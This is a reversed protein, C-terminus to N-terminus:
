QEVWYNPAYLDEIPNFSSAVGKLQKSYESFMPTYPLWIVPLDRAAYAQYADMRQQTQAATGPAYIAHLLADMIRSNYQGPNNAAGTGFLGGGSPFYDPQYTWSWSLGGGWNLLTWKTPDTPTALAIVNDFPESQLTVQIGEQAWDQKLLQVINTYTTSGSAYILSFALKQGNKVMVGNSLHWGHKELLTRGAALNYRYIPTNLARNYFATTPQPPIPGNEVVGQGHFMTRIIGEQNVGMQLAQRVYLNSLLSGGPGKPSLNPQIFNFGLIYTSVLRDATLEHRAKWLSPPLFGVNVTGNRLATFEASSSTEYQFQVKSLSSRHGGYHPNPIFSWYDNPSMSEFRYPGDVIRYLPNSPSNSVKEIFRLEKLMNHPYRDWAAAPAPMIQALGNHEFWVPNVPKTTTVVVTRSNKAVVSKWDATVGGIGQGGYGWPTDPNTSAAQMIDWTFVVDRATVPKGNSWRYKTGLTITYTTDNRSVRISQALSRPLDVQDAKNIYILPKYMLSEVQTNLDSYDAISLVPFFWNPSSQPSLAILATGGSATGSNTTSTGCASVMAGLVLVMAGPLAMRSVTM